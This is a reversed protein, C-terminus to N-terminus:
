RGIFFDAKCKLHVSIKGNFNGFLFLALYAFNWIKVFSKHFGYLAKWQLHIRLVIRWHSEIHCIEVWRM